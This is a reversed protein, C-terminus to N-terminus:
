PDGFELPAVRLRRVAIEELLQPLVSLVVPRGRTDRPGYGDHLLVIDGAGFGRLLLALVREPDGLVGDYGRRTWSVLRLDLQRLVPAIWPNRIGFPARFFRPARGSLDALTDQARRIEDRIARPGQLAFGNRHRDSHNEVRHGRAAIERTLNPHRRAREAVCFFSASVGHNDLLDLVAPTTDPDPGDDFTLAIDGSAAREATLRVMNPGLLTDQPRLSAAFLLAHNLVLAEILLPPLGPGSLVLPWGGLQFLISGRVFPSPCWDRLASLPGIM